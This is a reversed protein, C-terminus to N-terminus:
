EDLRKNKRKAEDWYTKLARNKNLADMIVTINVGLFQSLSARQPGAKDIAMRIIHEMCSNYVEGSKISISMTLTPEGIRNSLAPSLVSRETEIDLLLEECKEIDYSTVSKDKFFDIRNLFLGAVKDDILYQKYKVFCEYLNEISATENVRETVLRIFSTDPTKKTHM